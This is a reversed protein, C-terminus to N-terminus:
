KNLEKKIEEAKELDIDTGIGKSYCEILHEKAHDDGKSAAEEYLLFGQHEDKDVGMGNMYIHALTCLSRVLGHEVSKKVYYLGKTEDVECGFGQYYFIGLAREGRPNEQIASKYFYKFAKDLDKERNIGLNYLCGVIFQITSDNSDEKDKLLDLLEPYNGSEFLELAKNALENMNSITCFLFAETSAYNNKKIINPTHNILLESSEIVVTM